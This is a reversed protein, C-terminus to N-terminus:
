WEIRDINTFNITGHDTTITGSLDQADISGHIQANTLQQNDITLTWDGAGPGGGGLLDIEIIDTWGGAGGDVQTTGYFDVFRFRDVGDGGNLTDNGDSGLLLDNGVGGNLINDGTSGELRDSNQGRVFLELSSENMEVGNSLAYTVLPVAGSFGSFAEFTYRGDAGVTLNGVDPIEVTQNPMYTTDGAIGFETIELTGGEPNLANALLNGSVTAGEDLAVQENEDLLADNVPAVSITLTSTDTFGGG